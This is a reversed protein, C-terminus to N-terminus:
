DKYLKELAKRARKKNGSLIDEAYLRSETYYDEESLSYKTRQQLLVCCFASCSEFDLDSLEKIMSDLMQRRIPDLVHIVEIWAVFSKVALM